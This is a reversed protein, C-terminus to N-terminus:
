PIKGGRSRVAERVCYCIETQPSGDPMYGNRSVGSGNCKKCKRDAMMELWLEDFDEVEFFLDDENFPPFEADAYQRLGGRYYYRLPLDDIHDTDEAVTVTIITDPYQWSVFGIADAISSPYASILVIRGVQESDTIQTHRIQVNDLIDKLANENDTEIVMMSSYM